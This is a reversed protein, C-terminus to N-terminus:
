LTQVGGIPDALISTTSVKPFFFILIFCVIIIIIYYYYTDVHTRTCNPFINCPLIGTIARSPLWTGTTLLHLKKRWIASLGM